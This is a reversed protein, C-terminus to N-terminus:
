LNKQIFRNHRKRPVSEDYYGAAFAIQQWSLGEAYRMRLIERMESDAVGSIYCEMFNIQQWCKAISEKLQQRLEEIEGIYSGIRDAELSEKPLGPLGSLRSTCSTLANELSQLRKKQRVVEKKLYFLEELDKKEM